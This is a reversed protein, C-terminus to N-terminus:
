RIEKTVPRRSVGFLLFMAPLVTILTVAVAVAVATLAAHSAAATHITLSGVLHPSQALIWGWVLAAASLVTAARARRYRRRAFSVLSAATAGFGVVIVPLAAGLLRHWLGPADWRVIGLSVSSLAMAAAGSQLGRRRFRTALEAQGAQATRLVMVGAALEICRTVALAGTILAFASPWPIPPSASLARDGSSSVEAVGGAVAGFLFAAAVSALGFLRSLRRGGITQMDGSSRLALAAARLVIALLTVTLPVLLATGLVAFAAPFASFLLTISFILWVHNAEWLPGITEFIAIRETPRSGALLDLIGAGFDAGAFIAYATLSLGLLIALLAALSM